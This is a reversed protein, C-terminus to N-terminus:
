FRFTWHLKATAETREARLRDDDAVLGQEFVLFLDSGPTMTWRFISQFNMEDSSNDYQILNNWSLDPSLQLRVLATAIRVTFSDGCAKAVSASEDNCLADPAQRLLEWHRTHRYSLALVLQSIPEWQIRSFVGFRAGDYYDGGFLELRGSIRRSASAEFAVGGVPSLHKGKPLVVNDFVVRDQPEDQFELQAYAYFRDGVLTRIDVFTQRWFAETVHDPRDSETGVFVFSSTDLTQIETEPRWRYRWSGRYRLINERRLFGLAPRFDEEIRQVVFNWNVRDNPYAVRIGYANESDCDRAAPTPEQDDECQAGPGYTHSKQYWGGAEFVREGLLRSTRYNFDAGVLWNGDGSQPDGYTGIVGVTSEEGVNLKLRAVGLTKADVDEDVHNQSAQHVVLGGISLPGTRGTLKGGGRISVPEGAASLGIRRSFFPQADQGLNAFDFIGQDQLFFERREPFFLSFRSLNVQVADLPTQGFDTNTTATATLSPTIRYRIDGGPTLRTYHRRNSEGAPRMSDDVRALSFAPVIDLGLGQRSGAMGKLVGARALDFFRINQYADAWNDNEQSGRIGRRVNLGWSGAGARFSLSKLPIVFEATWGKSDIRTKVNWIGDWTLLFNGDEVLGDVRAGLPNTQFFYGNRHDLFTDLVFGIRDEAALNADRQMSRAIIGAPDDDWCRVGIYLNDADTLIRVETAKGPQAGEIPDVQTLPGIPVARGWEPEDLIGDVEPPVEVRLAEAVPKATESALASASALLVALALVRPGPCLRRIRRGASRGAVGPSLLRICSVPGAVTGCVDARALM